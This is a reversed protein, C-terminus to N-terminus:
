PQESATHNESSKQYQENHICKEEVIATSISLAVMIEILVRIDRYIVNVTTQVNDHPLSDWM